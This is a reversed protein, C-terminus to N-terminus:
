ANLKKNQMQLLVTGAIIILASVIFVPIDIKCNSFFFCVILVALAVGGVVWDLIAKKNTKKEM